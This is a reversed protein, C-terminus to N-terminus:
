NLKSCNRELAQRKLCERKEKIYLGYQKPQTFHDSARKEGAAVDRPQLALNDELEPLESQLMGRDQSAATSMSLNM